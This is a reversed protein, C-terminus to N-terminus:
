SFAAKTQVQDDFLQTFNTAMGDSYYLIVAPLNSDKGGATKWPNSDILEQRQQHLLEVESESHKCVQELSNAFCQTAM